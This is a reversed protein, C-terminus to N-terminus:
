HRGPITNQSVNESSQADCFSIMDKCLEVSCQKLDSPLDTSNTQTIKAVDFIVKLNCSVQFHYIM